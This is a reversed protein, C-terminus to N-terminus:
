HTLKLGDNRRLDIKRPPLSTHPNEKGGDVSIKADVIVKAFISRLIKAPTEPHRALYRKAQAEKTLIKRFYVDEFVRSSDFIALNEFFAPVDHPKREVQLLAIADELHRLLSM